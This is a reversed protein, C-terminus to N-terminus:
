AGNRARRERMMAYDVADVLAQWSAEIINTSVGVTNWTERDDTTEVLVRVKAATGERVNVVRVKFDTLRMNALHPFFQQLAKRMANDLAHVPGDGEAVTHAVEGNVRLKLTAETIPEEDGARKEVIVRFSILDFTKEYEGKAKRILLELSGEAGEYSYGENELRVVQDLVARTIPSDKTLDVGFQEAKHRVSSGGALESVLIKRKNGVSEPTLHEYTSGLKLVADAHVGGKHAFASRGVFPQRDNPTMNAVEDIFHSVETLERLRERGITELGLKLELSPIVSCLNANGCREGIGNMTGQVHVAGFQVAVISNAVATESDNHAHIGIPVRVHDRVAQIAEAVQNPLSGGNTDCLVLCDAGAEAAASLTALAYQPDSRYGDFFHEADYIVEEAHAKLFRVSDAIMELNQERTVRLAEIVHLDWSKGFITIVPARSAVLMRLNPDEEAAFRARRTSGFAAVRAHKLPTERIREFFTIDKPNSYPWGGEIYDVGFRDLRAAIKLKDELSFSIGEAQAGDRLTTDYTKIKM